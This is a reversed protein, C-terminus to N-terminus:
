QFIGQANPASRECPSSKQAKVNRNGNGIPRVRNLKQRLLNWYVTEYDIENPALWGHTISDGFVAMTIPGLDRLREEPMMLKDVIKM